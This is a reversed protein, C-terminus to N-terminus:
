ARRVPKCGGEIWRVLATRVWRRQRGFSVPSPFRGTSVLRELTRISVGIMEAAEPKNVFMSTRSAEKGYAM